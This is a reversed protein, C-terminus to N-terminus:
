KKVKSFNQTMFDYDRNIKRIGFPHFPSLLCERYRNQIKFAAMHKRAKKEKELEFYYWGSRMTNDIYSGLEIADIIMDDLSEFNQYFNLDAKYIAFAEEETLNENLSEIYFEDIDYNSFVYYFIPSNIYFPNSQEMENRWFTNYNSYYHPIELTYEKIKIYPIDGFTIKTLVM